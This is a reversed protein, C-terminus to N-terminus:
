ICCILLRHSYQSLSSSQPLAHHDTRPCEHRDASLCTQALETRQPHILPWNLLLQDDLGWHYSRFSIVSLIRNPDAHPDLDGFCLM